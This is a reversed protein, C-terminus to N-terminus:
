DWQGSIKRIGYLILKMAKLGM